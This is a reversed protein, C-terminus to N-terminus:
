LCSKKPNCRHKSIIRASRLVLDLKKSSNESWKVIWRIVIAIIFNFIRFQFRLFEFLLEIIISTRYNYFKFIFFTRFTWFIQFFFEYNLFAKLIRFTKQKGNRLRLQQNSKADSNDIWFFSSTSCVQYSVKLVMYKNSYFFQMKSYLFFHIMKASLFLDLRNGVSILKFFVFTSNVTKILYLPYM